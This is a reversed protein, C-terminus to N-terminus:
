LQGIGVTADAGNVTVFQWGFCDIGGFGGLLAQRIPRNRNRHLRSLFYSIRIVFYSIYYTHESIEYKTNRIEYKTIIKHVRLVNGVEASGDGHCAPCALISIMGKPRQEDICCAIDQQLCLVCDIGFVIACTMGLGIQHSQRGFLKFSGHEFAAREVGASFRAGHAGTGDM